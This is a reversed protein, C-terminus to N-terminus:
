RHHGAERYPGPCPCCQWPCPSVHTLRERQNTSLFLDVLSVAAQIESGTVYLDQQPYGRGVQDALELVLDVVRGGVGGGVVEDTQVELFNFQRGVAM